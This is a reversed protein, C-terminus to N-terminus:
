EVDPSQTLLWRPEPMRLLWAGVFVIVGGLAAAGVLVGIVGFRSLARVSEDAPVIWWLAAAMVACLAGTKVWSLVVDGALPRDVYRRLAILLVASQLLGCISTSWALGAAGLPWILILNLTVNLAVMFLAIRMPTKADHQAYFARTMVHNMSYAWVAPAYGFLVWAIRGAAADDVAGLPYYIARALPYSVLLLGVAAPLGIFVALRLGQHFLDGFAERRAVLAALQPFIATALAIAFVGLPFEYLRAASALVAVSGIEMPYAAGNDLWGISTGDAGSFAMAILSDALVNVQFVALGVITPAWQKLLARHAGIVAPTDAPSETRSRRMSVPTWGDNADAIALLHWVVQVIGAGVIAWAFIYVIQQPEWDRAELALGLVSAGIIALNLIIPSAAPVAFRKQVQLMAGFVAALCVLPMYWITITTLSAALMGRPEGAVLEAALGIGVGAVAVLALLVLILRGTVQRAFRRAAERSSEVLTTYHPIFAAALAGDGFLRRFLNPVILAIVFADYVGDEGFGLVLALFFDRALGCFRSVLTLGSVLRTRGTLSGGGSDGEGGALMALLGYAIAGCGVGFLDASLDGLSANRAESFQQSWEDIATYVVVVGIAIAAHHRTWRRAVGCLCVLFCLGGFAVFHVWKDVGFALSDMSVGTLETLDLRPWHTGVVLALFYGLTFIRIAAQQRRNM